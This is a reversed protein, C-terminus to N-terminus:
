AVRRRRAAAIGLMGLVAFGSPAPVLAYTNGVIEENGDAILLADLWLGFHRNKIRIQGEMTNNMLSDTTFANAVNAGMMDVCGQPYEDPNGLYHGTEHASVHIDTRNVGSGGTRYWNSTDTSGDGDHVVIDYMSSTSTTSLQADYRLNWTKTGGLPDTCLIQVDNASRNWFLEMDTEWNTLETNTIAASMAAASLCFTQTLTIVCNKYDVKTDAKYDFDCPNGIVKGDMDYQLAGGMDLTPITWHKTGFFGFEQVMAAHASAASLVIAMAGVFPAHRQWAATM